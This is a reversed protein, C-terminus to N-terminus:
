PLAVRCALVLMAQIVLYAQVLIQPFLLNFDVLSPGYVFTSLRCDENVWLATQAPCFSFRNFVLLLVLFTNMFILPSPLPIHPYKLNRFAPTPHNYVAYILPVHFLPWPATPSSRLFSSYRSFLRLIFSHTLPLTVQSLFTAILVFYYLNLLNQSFSQLTSLPCALALSLFRVDSARSTKFPFGFWCYTLWILFLLHLISFFAPLCEAILFILIWLEQIGFVLAQSVSLMSNQSLWLESWPSILNLNLPTEKSASYYNWLPASISATAIFHSVAPHSSILILTNRSLALNRSCLVSTSIPYQLKPVSIHSCSSNFYLVQLFKLLFWSLFSKLIM